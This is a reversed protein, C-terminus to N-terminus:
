DGKIWSPSPGGGIQGRQGVIRLAAFHVCRWVQYAYIFFCIRPPEVPGKDRNTVEVWSEIIESDPYTRYKVIIDFPYYIDTMKISTVKSGDAESVTSVDKVAMQLTMNGDPHTVSMATERAPVM